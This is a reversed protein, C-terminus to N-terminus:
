IERDHEQLIKEDRFAEVAFRHWDKDSTSRYASGNSHGAPYHSFGGAGETYGQGLQTFVIEGLWTQEKRWCAYIIHQQLRFMWSDQCSQFIDQPELDMRPLNLFPPHERCGQFRLMMITYHESNPDSQQKEDVGGEDGLSTDKHQALSGYFGGISHLARQATPAHLTIPRSERYEYHFFGSADHEGKAGPLPGQSRRSNAFLDDKLSNFSFGQRDSFAPKTQKAFSSEPKAQDVVDSLTLFSSKEPKSGAFLM